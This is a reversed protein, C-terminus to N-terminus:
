ALEVIVRVCKVYILQSPKTLYGFAVYASCDLIDFQQTVTGCSNSCEASYLKSSKAIRPKNVVRELNNHLILLWLLKRFVFM